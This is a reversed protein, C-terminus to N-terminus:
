SKANWIIGTGILGAFVLGTAGNGTLLSVTQFYYCLGFVGGWVVATGLVKGLQPMFDGKTIDSLELLFRVLFVQKTL